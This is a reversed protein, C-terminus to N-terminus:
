PRFPQLMALVTALVVGWAPWSLAVLVSAANCLDSKCCSVSRTYVVGAYEFDFTGATCEAACKRYVCKGEFVDGFFQTKGCLHKPLNSSELM